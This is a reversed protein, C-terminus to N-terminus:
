GGEKLFTFSSEMFVDMSKIFKYFQHHNLGRSKSFNVAKIIQVVDDLKLAKACINEQHRICQSVSPLQMM